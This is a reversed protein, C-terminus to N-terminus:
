DNVTFAARGFRILGVSNAEKYFYNDIVYNAGLAGTTGYLGIRFAKLIM